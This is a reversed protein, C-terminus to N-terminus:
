IPVWQLHGTPTVRRHLGRRFCLENTRAAIQVHISSQNGYGHVTKRTPRHSEVRPFLLFESSFFATSVRFFGFARLRRRAPRKRSRRECASYTALCSVHRGVHTSMKGWRRRTAADDDVGHADNRGAMRPTSGATKEVPSAPDTLGREGAFGGRAVGRAGHVRGARKRADKPVHRQGRVGRNGEM